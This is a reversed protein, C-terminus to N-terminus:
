FRRGRGGGHSLVLKRTRMAMCDPMSMEARTAGMVMIMIMIMTTVPLMGTTTSMAIDPSLSVPEEDQRLSAM